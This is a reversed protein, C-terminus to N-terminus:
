FRGCVGPTGSSVSENAKTEAGLIKSVPFTSRGAIEGRVPWVLYPMVASGLKDKAWLNEQGGTPTSLRLPTM